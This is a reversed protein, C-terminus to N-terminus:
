LVRSGRASARLSTDSFSEPSSGTEDPRQLPAFPGESAPLICVPDADKYWHPTRRQRRGGREDTEWPLQVGRGEGQAPGRAPTGMDQFLHGMVSDNAGLRDISPGHRPILLM